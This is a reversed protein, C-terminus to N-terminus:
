YRDILVNLLLLRGNLEREIALDLAHVQEVLRIRMQREGMTGLDLTLQSLETTM